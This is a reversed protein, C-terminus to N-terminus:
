TFCIIITYIAIYAGCACIYMSQFFQRLSSLMLFFFVICFSVEEKHQRQQVATKKWAGVRGVPRWELPTCMNRFLANKNNVKEYGSTRLYDLNSLLYDLCMCTQFFSFILFIGIINEKSGLCELINWCWYCVHTLQRTLFLHFAWKRKGQDRWENGKGKTEGNRSPWSVVGLAFRELLTFDTACHLLLIELSCSNCRCNSISLRCLAIALMM